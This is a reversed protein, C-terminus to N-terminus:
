GEPDDLLRELRDWLAPVLKERWSADMLGVDILDRLQMRDIDQFSALNMRVLPTLKLLQFDGTRESEAVQPAPAEDEPRVRKGAFVIHIADRASADAGELFMDVGRAHRYHFGAQELATRAAEFDAPDLLLDVNRTNRVAAEDVRSVWAAVANGGIVAYPVGAAELATTARMLRDRVKEVARSMREWSVEGIVATAM